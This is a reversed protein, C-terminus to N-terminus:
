FRYRATLMANRRNGYGCDSNQARCWSVYETDALNKVDFRFDWTGYTYGIMADYLSVSPVVPLENAGTVNGIHRGGLGIRLGNGFRYQAWASGSKEAISSLRKQTAQNIASLKEELTMTNSIIQGM